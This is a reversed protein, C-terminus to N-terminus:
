FCVNSSGRYFLKTNTLKMAALKLITSKFGHKSHPVNPWKPLSQLDLSVLYKLQFHIFLHECTFQKAEPDLLCLAKLLSHAFVFHLCFGHSNFINWMRYVPVFWKWILHKEFYLCHYNRFYMKTKIRSHM